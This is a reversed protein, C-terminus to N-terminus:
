NFSVSIGWQPHAEVKEHHGKVREDYESEDRPMLRTAQAALYPLM